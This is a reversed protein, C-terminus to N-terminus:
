MRCSVVLSVVRCSLCCHLLTAYVFPRPPYAVLPVGPLLQPEM